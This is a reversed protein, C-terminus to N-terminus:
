NLVRKPDPTSGDAPVQQEAPVEKLIGRRQAYARALLVLATASENLRNDTEAARQQAALTRAPSVGVDALMQHYHTQAVDNAADAKALEIMAREWENFRAEMELLGVEAPTALRVERPRERLAELRKRVLAECLARAAEDPTYGEAYVLRGDPKITVWVHSGTRIVWDDDDRDDSMSSDQGPPGRFDLTGDIPALAANEGTFRAPRFARAASGLSGM